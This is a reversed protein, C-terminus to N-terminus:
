RAPQRHFHLDAIALLKVEDNHGIRAIVQQPALVSREREVWWALLVVGPLLRLEL